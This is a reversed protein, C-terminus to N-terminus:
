SNVDVQYSLICTKTTASVTYTYTYPGSGAVTTCLNSGSNYGRIKGASPVGDDVKSDISLVDSPLLAGTGTNASLVGSTVTGNVISATATSAAVNGTLAVVNQLSVTDYDFAWGSGKVKSVPFNTGVTMAPVTTSLAVLTLTTTDIAGITQLDRLAEAGEAVTSDFHRIQNNGNGVVDSSGLSTAFDGPLANYRSFFNNVASAYVRAEVVVSRLESSKILSAGGTIGAILLGIIILVISLEILSFASKKKSSFTKKM